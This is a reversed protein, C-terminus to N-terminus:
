QEKSKIKRNEELQNVLARPLTIKRDAPPV